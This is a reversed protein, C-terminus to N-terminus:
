SPTITRVSASRDRYTGNRRLKSPSKQAEDSLTLAFQRIGRRLGSMQIQTAMPEVIEVVQLGCVSDCQGDWGSPSVKQAGSEQFFLVIDARDHLDCGFADDPYLTV